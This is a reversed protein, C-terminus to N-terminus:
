DRLSAEAEEKAEEAEDKSAEAEKAKAEAEEKAQAARDISGKDGESSPREESREAGLGSEAGVTCSTHVSRSTRPPPPAAM